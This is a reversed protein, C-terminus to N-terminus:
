VQTIHNVINNNPVFANRMEFGDNADIVVYGNPKKILNHKPKTKNASLHTLANHLVYGSSNKPLHNPSTKSKTSEHSPSNSSLTENLALMPEIANLNSSKDKSSTILSHVASEIPFQHGNAKIDILSNNQIKESESFNSSSNRCSSIPQTIVDTQENDGNSSTSSVEADYSNQSWDHELRNKVPKRSIPEGNNLISEIPVYGNNANTENTKLSSINRVDSNIYHNPVHIQRKVGFKYYPCNPSSTRTSSKSSSNNTDCIICNIKPDSSTSSNQIINSLSKAMEPKHFKTLDSLINHDERIPLDYLSPESNALLSYICVTHNFPHDYLPNVVENRTPLTSIKNNKSSRKKKRKARTGGSNMDLGSDKSGSSDSNRSSMEDVISLSPKPVVKNVNQFENSNQHAEVEVGSDSNIHAEGNYSNSSVSEHQGSDSSIMRNFANSENTQNPLSRFILGETSSSSTHSLGSGHRNKFSDDDAIAKQLPNDNVINPISDTSRSFEANMTNDDFQNDTIIQPVDLGTPLIITLKNYEDIKRKMWRVLSYLVIVFIMLGLFGGIIIGIIYAENEDAGLCANLNTSDSYNGVLEEHNRRNVALISVAYQQQYSMSDDKNTDCNLTLHFEKQNSSINYIQSDSKNNMWILKLLYYDIPGNAMIPPSWSIRVSTSNVIETRPPDMRSPSSALTRMSFDDSTYPSCYSKSNCARVQIRYTQYSLLGTINYSCGYSCQAANITYTKDNCLIDYYLIQGNPKHPPKWNLLISDDTTEIIKLNNPADDPSDHPTTAYKPDSEDSPGSDTLAVVTIKYESFPQLGNLTYNEGSNEVTVSYPKYCEKVNFLNLVVRCYTIKYEEVVRKQAPCNLKWIVGISTSNQVVLRVESLKELRGDIPVICEAWSMGSSSNLANASVAFQYNVSIDSLELAISTNTTQIWDIAGECPFPRPKLNRCWFVTYNVIPGSISNDRPQGWQLEYRGGGYSFVDINTPKHPINENKDIMIESYNKSIGQANAGYIKFKYATNSDMHTFTYTTVESKITLTNHNNNNSNVRWKPRFQESYEISYHFDPANHDKTPIPKWFLTISRNGETNKVTQFSEPILIPAM